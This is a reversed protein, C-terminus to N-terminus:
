KPSRRREFLSRTFGGPISKGVDPTHPRHSAPVSSGTLTASEWFLECRHEFKIAGQYTVGREPDLASVMCRLVHAGVGFSRSPTVIQLHVRAGPRLQRQGEILAGGASLDVLTVPCGPRITARTEGLLPALFRTDHRRDTLPQDV